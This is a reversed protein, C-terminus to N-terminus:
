EEEISGIVEWRGTDENRSFNCFPLDRIRGDKGSLRIFRSLINVEQVKLFSKDWQIRSGEVPLRQKEERYFDYEYSLCCLLRGCPGSIKMSNLSINQEKAMRISVPRLKDTIGHCCYPRGCVAVGGLVRSEDRVGIQRLEIRMKFVSVLDKVLERFDVREDATFFFLLKSEETLFHASVLKMDLKHDRIKERCVQLADQEREKNKEFVSVDEATAVRGIEIIEDESEAVTQCVLGLVKAMDRGFRSPVVVRDDVPLPEVSQWSCIQTESSHLLKIRYFRLGTRANEASQMCAGNECM